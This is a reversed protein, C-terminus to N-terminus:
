KNVLRVILGILFILAIFGLGYLYFKGATSFGQITSGKATDITDAVYKKAKVKAKQIWEKLEAFEVSDAYYTQQYTNEQQWEAKKKKDRELVYEIDYLEKARQSSLIYYAETLDQMRQTANSAPNLDPHYRKALARYSSKIEEQTSPFDIELIAYYDPLM